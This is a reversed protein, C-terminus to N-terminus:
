NTNSKWQDSDTPPRVWDSNSRQYKEQKKPKRALEPVLEARLQACATLQQDCCLGLGHGEPDAYCKLDIGHIINRQMAHRINYPSICNFNESKVRSMKAMGPLMVQKVGSWDRTIKSTVSQCGGRGVSIEAITFPSFILTFGLALLALLPPRPGSEKM